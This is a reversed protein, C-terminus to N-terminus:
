DARRRTPRSGRALAACRVRARWLRHPSADRCRPRSLGDTIRQTSVGAIWHIRMPGMFDRLM